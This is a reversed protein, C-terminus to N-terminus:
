IFFTLLPNQLTVWSPFVFSRGCGMGLSSSPQAPSLASLPDVAGAQAQAPPGGLTARLPGGM